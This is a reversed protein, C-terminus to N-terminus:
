PIEMAKRESRKLPGKLGKLHGKQGGEFNKLFFQGKKPIFFNFNIGYYTNTEQNNKSYTIFQIHFFL